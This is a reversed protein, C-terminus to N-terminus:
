SFDLGSDPFAGPGNEASNAQIVTLVPKHWEKGHAEPEVPIETAGEHNDGM